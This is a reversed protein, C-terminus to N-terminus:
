LALAVSGAPLPLTPGRRFPNGFVDRALDAPGGALPADPADATRGAYYAACDAMRCAAQFPDPRLADYLDPEALADCEAAMGEYLDALEADPLGGEANQLALAVAHRNWEDRTLHIVQLACAVAFLRLQRPSATGRVHRLMAQADNGERWEQETMTM